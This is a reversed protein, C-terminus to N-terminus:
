VDYMDYVTYVLSPSAGREGGQRGEKGKWWEETTRHSWWRQGHDHTHRKMAGHHKPFFPQDAPRQQAPTPYAQLLRAMRAM